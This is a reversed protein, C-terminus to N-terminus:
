AAVERDGLLVAAAGREDAQIRMDRIDRLLGYWIQVSEQFSADQMLFQKVGRVEMRLIYAQSQMQVEERYQAHATSERLQAGSQLLAQFAAYM